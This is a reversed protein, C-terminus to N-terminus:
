FRRGTSRPASKRGIMMGLLLGVVGSGMGVLMTQKKLATEIRHIQDQVQDQTFTPLKEVPPPTVQIAPKVVEVPPTVEPLTSPADPADAPLAKPVPTDQAEAATAISLALFLLHVANMSLFITLSAIRRGELRFSSVGPRGIKRM